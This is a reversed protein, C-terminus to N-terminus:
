GGSKRAFMGVYRMMGAAYLKELQLGGRFARLAVARSPGAWSLGGRLAAARLTRMLRGGFRVGATVDVVRWTAQPLACAYDAEDYLRTLLWDCALARATSCGPDGNFVDEVIALRGGPVLARYVAQLTCSLDVSHKLSEVAVIADFAERPLRDFSGEILEIAGASASTAAARTARRLESPSITLGTVRGVGREAMRITGFGVGCGLDLVRDTACLCL